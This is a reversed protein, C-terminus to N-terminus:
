DGRVVQLVRVHSVGAERAIARLSEGAAHAERIAQRWEDDVRSRRATARRVRLLLSRDAM